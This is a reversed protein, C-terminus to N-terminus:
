RFYSSSAAAPTRSRNIRANSLVRPRKTEPSPTAWPESMAAIARPTTRVNRPDSNLDGAPPGYQLWTANAMLVLFMALVVASLRRLPPNM